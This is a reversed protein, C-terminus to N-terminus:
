VHCLLTYFADSCSLRVPAFPLTRDADLLYVLVLLLFLILLHDDIYSPLPPSLSVV